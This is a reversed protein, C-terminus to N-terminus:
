KLREPAPPGSQGTGDCNTCPTDPPNKPLEPQQHSLGEMMKFVWESRDGNLYDVGPHSASTRVNTANQSLLNMCMRGYVAEWEADTHTDPTDAPEGYDAIEADITPGAGTSVIEGITAVMESFGISDDELTADIYERVERLAEHYGWAACREPAGPRLPGDPLEKFFRERVADPLKRQDSM